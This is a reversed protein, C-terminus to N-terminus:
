FPWTSGPWLSVNGNAFAACMAERAAAEYQVASQIELIQRGTLSSKDTFPTDAIPGALPDLENVLEGTSGMDCASAALSLLPLALFSLTTPKPASVSRCIVSLPCAAFLLGNGTRMMRRPLRSLDPVDPPFRAGM